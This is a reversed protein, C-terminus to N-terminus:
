FIGERGCQGVKNSSWALFYCCCFILDLLVPLKVSTSVERMTIIKYTVLRLNPQNIAAGSCCTNHM